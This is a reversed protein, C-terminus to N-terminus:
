PRPIKLILSETIHNNKASIVTFNEYDSKQILSVTRNFYRILLTAICSRSAGTAGKRGLTSQDAGNGVWKHTNKISGWKYQVVRWM